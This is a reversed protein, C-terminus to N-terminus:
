GNRLRARNKRYFYRVAYLSVAVASMCYIFYAYVTAYFPPKVKITLACVEGSSNGYGDSFRLMFRYEGPSLNSYNVTHRGTEIWDKDIGELMYSYVGESTYDFSAFGISFHKDNYRIGINDLGPM